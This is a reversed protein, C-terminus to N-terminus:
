FTRMSLDGNDAEQLTLRPIPMLLHESLADLYASYENIYTELQAIPNGHDLMPFGMNTFDQWIKESEQPTIRNQKKHIDPKLGFLECLNKLADVIVTQINQAPRKDDLQFWAISVSSLDLLVAFGSLWNSHRATSRHYCLVPYCLQSVFCKLVWDSCEKFFVQSNPVDKEPISHYLISSASSNIGTQMQIRMLGIERDFYITTITPIFGIIIAIFSYGCGVEILSFIHGFTSSPALDGYGLTFFTVGSLYFYDGFTPQGTVGKLEEGISWSLLAFGVILSILWVGFLSLVVSPAYVSLLFKRVKIKTSNRYIIRVIYWYVTEVLRATGYSLENKRSLNIFSFGDLLTVGILITAFVLWIAPIIHEMPGAWGNKSHQLRRNWGTRPVTLKTDSLESSNM